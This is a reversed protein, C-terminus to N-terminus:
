FIHYEERRLRFAIRAWAFRRDQFAGIRVASFIMKSSLADAMPRCATRNRAAHIATASIRAATRMM